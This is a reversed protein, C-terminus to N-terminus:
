RRNGQNVKPEYRADRWAMIFATCGPRAKSQYLEKSEANDTASRAYAPFEKFKEKWALQAPTRKGSPTPPGSLYLKGSRGKKVIVQKGLM